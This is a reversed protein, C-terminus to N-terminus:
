FKRGRLKEVVEWGMEPWLRRLYGERIAEAWLVHKYEM